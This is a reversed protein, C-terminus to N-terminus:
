RTIQMRPRTSVGTREALRLFTQDGEAVLEPGFHRRALDRAAELDRQERSVVQIREGEVVFARVRDRFYDRGSPGPVDRYGDIMPPTILNPVAGYLANPPRSKGGGASATRGRRFHFYTREPRGGADAEAKIRAKQQMAEHDLERLRMQYVLDILAERTDANGARRATRRAQDRETRIARRQRRFDTRIEALRLAYTQGDNTRSWEARRQEYEDRLPDPNEARVSREYSSEVEVAPRSHDLTGFRELFSFATLGVGIRSLQVARSPRDKDVVVLGRKWERLELNYRGLTRHVDAQTTDDDALISRLEAGPGGQVWAQLSPYGTHLSGDIAGGTPRETGRQGRSRRVIKGDVVGYIGPSHATGFDLELQRCLRDLKLYPLHPSHMRYTESNVRNILVHAHRHGSSSDDHIVIINQHGPGYGLEDIARQGAALIETAEPTEDPPWALTFHQLARATEGGLSTNMSAVAEMEASASLLTVVEPSKAVALAREGETLYEVLASFGPGPALMKANV